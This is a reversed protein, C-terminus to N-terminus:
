LRPLRTGKLDKMVTSTLQCHAGPTSAPPMDRTYGDYGAFEPEGFEPEGYGAVGPYEEAFQQEGEGYGVMEPQGYYGM